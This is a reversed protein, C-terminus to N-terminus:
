RIRTEDRYHSIRRGGQQAAWQAEALLRALAEQYVEAELVDRGPVPVVLVQRHPEGLVLGANGGSQELNVGVVRELALYDTLVGSKPHYALNSQKASIKKRKVFRDLKKDLVLAEKAM